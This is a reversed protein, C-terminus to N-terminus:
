AAISQFAATNVWNMVDFSRSHLREIQNDNSSERMAFGNREDAYTAYNTFANYVGFTNNGWQDMNDAALELMAKQTREFPIFNNIVTEVQDLTIKRQTMRKMADIHQAFIVSGDQVESLFKDLDFHRSNKRRVHSIDEGWVCTNLCWSLRSGSLVNNSTLGDLGHWAVIKYVLASSKRDTEILSQMGEFAWERLAWAGKRSTFTRTTASGFGDPFGDEIGEFFEAHSVCNFDKGVIGLVDGTDANIVYKSKDFRTPEFGVEFDWGEGTHDASGTHGFSVRM